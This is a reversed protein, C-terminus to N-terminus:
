SALSATLAELRNTAVAVGLADMYDRVHAIRGDRATIALVGALQFTTGARTTARANWESIVTGTADDHHRAVDRLDSLEVQRGAWLRRYGERLSERDQYCPPHGPAMFPFVHTADAAYLDALADADFALMADQYRRLLELAGLPAVHSNM